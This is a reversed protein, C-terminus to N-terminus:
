VERHTYFHEIADLPFEVIVYEDDSMGEIRVVGDYVEYSETGHIQYEEGGDLVVFVEGWRDVRDALESEDFDM